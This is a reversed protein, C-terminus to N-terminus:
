IAGRTCALKAAQWADSAPQFASDQLWINGWLREHQFVRAAITSHQDHQLAAALLPAADALLSAYNSRDEARKTQSASHELALIYKSLSQSINM